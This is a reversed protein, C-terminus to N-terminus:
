YHIEYCHEYIKDDINQFNFYKEFIHDAKLVFLVDSFIFSCNIWYSNKVFNSFIM